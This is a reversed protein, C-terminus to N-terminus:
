VLSRSGIPISVAKLIEYVFMSFETRLLTFVIIRMLLSARRPEKRLRGSIILMEAQATRSISMSTTMLIM